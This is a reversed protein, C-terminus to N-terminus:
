PKVGASSPRLPAVPPEASVLSFSWTPQGAAAPRDAASTTVSTNEVKVSSLRLNHMLPSSSLKAVWENLASPELTFGALEFRGDEMKIQNIWVPEPISSAVWRLRDSHGYGPVLVGDRLAALLQNRATLANRKDQIQQLLAGDVPAANARSRAIAAQLSEIETAQTAMTQTFGRSSNELSWVWAACLGGGVVLIVSLAQVVTAASFYRKETLLIPTCLNIQQAM